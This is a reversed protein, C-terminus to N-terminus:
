TIAAGSLIWNFCSGPLMLRSGRRKFFILSLFFMLIKTYVEKLTISNGQILNGLHLRIEQLKPNNEMISSTPSLTTSFSLKFSYITLHFNWSQSMLCVHMFLNKQM